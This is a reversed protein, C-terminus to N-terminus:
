RSPIKNEKASVAQHVAKPQNEEAHDFVVRNVQRNFQQRRRRSAMRRLVVHLRGQEPERVNLSQARLVPSGSFSQQQGDPLATRSEAQVFTNSRRRILLQTSESSIEDHCPSRHFTNSRRPASDRLRSYRFSMESSSAYLDISSQCQM